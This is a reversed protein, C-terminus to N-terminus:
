ISFSRDFSAQASRIFPTSGIPTARNNNGNINNINNISNSLPLPRANSGTNVIQNGVGVIRNGNAVTRSPSAGVFGVNNNNNVLRSSFARNSNNNNNARNNGRNKKRNGKGGRSGNGSTAGRNSNIVLQSNTGSGIIRGSSSKGRTSSSISNRNNSSSTIVRGRRASGAGYEAQPSAGYEAQPESAEGAAEEDLCWETRLPKARLEPQTFKLQCVEKPVITCEQKPKLSPVLRTVLRCTKQPNLDCSEEPVDVLTDVTKDHCEEPGKLIASTLNM